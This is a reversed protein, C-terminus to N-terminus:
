VIRVFQRWQCSVPCAPGACVDTPWALQVLLFFGGLM